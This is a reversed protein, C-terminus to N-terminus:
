LVFVCFYSYLFDLKSPTAVERCLYTFHISTKRIAHDAFADSSSCMQIQHRELSLSCLCVRLTPKHDRTCWPTRWKRILPSGHSSNPFIPHTYPAARATNVCRSFEWHARYSAKTQSQDHSGLSHNWGTANSLQVSDHFSHSQLNWRWVSLLITLSAQLKFTLSRFHIGFDCRLLGSPWLLDSVLVLVLVLVLLLLKTNLTTLNVVWYWRRAVTPSKLLARLGWNHEIM